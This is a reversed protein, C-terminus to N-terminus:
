AALQLRSSERYIEFIDQQTIGASSPPIFDKYTQLTRAGHGNTVRNLWTRVHHMGESKFRGRLYMGAMYQDIPYANQSPEQHGGAFIQLRDYPNFDLGNARLKGVTDIQPPIEGSIQREVRTLTVGDPPYGYLKEFPPVDELDRIMEPPIDAALAKANRKREREVEMCLKRRQNM